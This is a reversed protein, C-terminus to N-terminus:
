RLVRRHGQLNQALRVQDPRLRHLAGLSLSRNQLAEIMGENHVQDPGELVLLTEEDHEFKHVPPLQEGMKAESPLQLRAMSPHIDRLQDKDELVNVTQAHRVPIQLRFIHQDVALAVQLQRIKSKRLHHCGLRPCQASSWLVQRGLRDAARAVARGNVPPGNTHKQKLEKRAVWGEVALIRELGILLDQSTASLKRAIGSPFGLVEDLSKQDVVRLFPQLRLRVRRSSLLDLVM